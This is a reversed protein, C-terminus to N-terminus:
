TNGHYIMSDAILGVGKEAVFRAVCNNEFDEPMCFLLDREQDVMVPSGISIRKKCSSCHTENGTYTEM